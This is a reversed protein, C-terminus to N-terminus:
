TTSRITDHIQAPRAAAIDARWADTRIVTRVAIGAGISVQVLAGCRRAVIIVSAVLGGTCRRAGGARVVTLVARVVLAVACTCTCMCVVKIVAGGARRDDVAVAIPADTLVGTAVADGLGEIFIAVETTARVARRTGAAVTGTM